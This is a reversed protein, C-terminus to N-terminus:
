IEAGCARLIAKGNEYGGFRLIDETDLMVGFADELAAILNLHTMSDWAEVAQFTFNEDLEDARVGFVDIFVQQYRELGSM